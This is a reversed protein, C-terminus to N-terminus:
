VVLRENRAHPRMAVLIRARVRRKEKRKKKRLVRLPASVVFPASFAGKRAGKRLSSLAICSNVLSKTGAAPITTYWLVRSTALSVRVSAHLAM